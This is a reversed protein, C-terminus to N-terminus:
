SLVTSCASKGERQPLYIVVREATAYVQFVDHERVAELEDSSLEALAAPPRRLGSQM